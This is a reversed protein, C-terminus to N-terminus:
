DRESESQDESRREYGGCDTVPLRPYRPFSEPETRSRRCLSFVSGRTNRVLQQHRCSDCLGAAPGTV